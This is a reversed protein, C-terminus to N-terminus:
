LRKPSDRNDADGRVALNRLAKGTVRMTLWGELVKAGLAATGITKKLFDRRNEMDDGVKAVGNFGM